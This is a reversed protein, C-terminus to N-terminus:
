SESLHPEQLSCGRFLLAAVRTNSNREKKRTRVIPHCRNMGQRLNIRYHHKPRIQGKFSFIYINGISTCESRGYFARM